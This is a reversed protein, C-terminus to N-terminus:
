YADDMRGALPKRRRPRVTAAAIGASALAVTMLRGPVRGSEKLGDCSCITRRMVMTSRKANLAVSAPKEETALRSFRTREMEMRPMRLRPIPKITMLRPMSRLSTAIMAPQQDTAKISICAPIGTNQAASTARAIARVRPTM